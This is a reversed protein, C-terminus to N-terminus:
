EQNGKNQKAYLKDVAVFSIVAIGVGLTKAQEIFPALYSLNKDLAKKASYLPDHPLNFPHMVVWRAGIMASAEIARENM